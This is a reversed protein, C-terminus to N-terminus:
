INSLIAEFGFYKDNEISLFMKKGNSDYGNRQQHVPAFRQNENRNNWGSLVM